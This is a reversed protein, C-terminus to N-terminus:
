MEIIVSEYFFYLRKMENGCKIKIIYDGVKSPQSTSSVRMMEM